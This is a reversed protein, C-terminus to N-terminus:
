AAYLRVAPRNEAVIEGPLEPRKIYFFWASVAGALALWFAPTVIAHLALGFAGARLRAETLIEREPLM